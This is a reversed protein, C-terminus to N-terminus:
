EHRKIRSWSIKIRISKNNKRWKSNPRTSYMARGLKTLKANKNFIMSFTKKANFKIENISGYEEILRLLKNIGRKTHSILIDDAYLLVNLKLQGCIVGMESSQNILHVIDEIYINFLKPSITGGQRVGVTTKFLETTEDDNMVMMQSVNYYNMIAMVIAPNINKKIM